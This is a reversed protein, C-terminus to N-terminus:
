KFDPLKMLGWVPEKEDLGDYLIWGVQDPYISSLYTLIKTEFQIWVENTPKSPMEGHPFHLQKDSEKNNTDVM